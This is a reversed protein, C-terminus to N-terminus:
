NLSIKPVVRQIALVAVAVTATQQQQNDQGGGLRPVVCSLRHIVTLM